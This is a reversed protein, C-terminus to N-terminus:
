SSKQLSAPVWGRGPDNVRVDPVPGWKGHPQTKPSKHLGLKEKLKFWLVSTANQIPTIGGKGNHRNPTPRTVRYGLM